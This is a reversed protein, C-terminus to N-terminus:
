LIKKCITQETREYLIKKQKEELSFYSFACTVNNVDIVNRSTKEETHELITLGCM